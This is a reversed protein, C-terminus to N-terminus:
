WALFLGTLISIVLTFLLAVRDVRIEGRLESLSQFSFNLEPLLRTLAEVGWVALLLGLAGGILSLLLSETLLQRLVEARAGGRALRIGMGRRRRGARTAM